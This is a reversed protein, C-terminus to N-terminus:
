FTWWLSGAPEGAKEQGHVCLRTFHIYKSAIIINHCPIQENTVQAYAAAMYPVSYKPLLSHCGEVIVPPLIHVFILVQLRGM